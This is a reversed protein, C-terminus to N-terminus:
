LGLDSYTKPYMDRATVGTKIGGEAGKDLVSDEKVLKGIRAFAKIIEPHNGMGSAELLVNLESKGEGPPQIARLGRKALALNENYKAGGFEADTKIDKVWQNIMESRAKEMAAAQKQMIDMHVNALEQAAEQSLNHKKLLPTITEMVEPLVEYGEMPQIEYNEPISPAAPKAPEDGETLVSSAAPDVPTAPDGGGTLLSEPIGVEEVEAESGQTPDLVDEM